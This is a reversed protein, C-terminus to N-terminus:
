TYESHTIHPVIGRFTIGLRNLVTEYSQCFQTRVTDNRPESILELEGNEKPLVIRYADTRHKKDNNFKEMVTALHIAPWQLHNANLIDLMAKIHAALPAVRKHGSENLLQRQQAYEIATLMGVGVAVGHSIGFDTAAELAHGFTHGFNLLLREKQDFEDTEIFWKKTQLSHILLQQAAENSLPWTPNKELYDLFPHEGRAYCIKAAEYLGGVVQEAALTHIFDVDIVVQTPPYINGVLNKYNRVNISSKGGICSDAMSLLTTPMYTWSIGRMYISATFTAIDQMIGGGIAILHSTRNAGFARLQLIVEAMAELSKSSEKAEIPIRKTISAPLKNELRADILFIADPHATILYALLGHSVTIGYNGSASCIDFSKQM